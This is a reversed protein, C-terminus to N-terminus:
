GRWGTTCSGSFDARAQRRGKGARLTDIFGVAGGAPSRLEISANAVFDARMEQGPAVADPRPVDDAHMRRAGGLLDAGSDAHHDAGDLPRGARSGSLHHAAKPPRSPRAFRPSSKPHACRSNRSNTRACPRPVSAAAANLHLVRRRDLLVASDGPCSGAHVAVAAAEVPNIARSMTVPPSSMMCDGRCWLPPQSASSCPPAAAPCTQRIFSGPSLSRAALLTFSPPM